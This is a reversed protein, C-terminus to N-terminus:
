KPLYKLDSNSLLMHSSRKLESLKSKSMINELIVGVLKAYHVLTDPFTTEFCPRLGFLM